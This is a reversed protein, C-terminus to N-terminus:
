SQGELPGVAQPRRARWRLWGRLVLAIGVCLLIWWHAQHLLVAAFDALWETRVWAKAADTGAETATTVIGVAYDRALAAFGVACKVGAAVCGLAWWGFALSGVALVGVALGWVLSLSLVGVAVAGVAIPAVAVGGFALLPSVAIEGVALWGCVTRPCDRVSDTGGWGVALLPLGLLRQRSEVYGPLRPERGQAARVKAYEADTTRTQIRLRKVECDMRRCLGLIGGVLAATWAGVGMVVWNASATYLRGAQTLVAALALSMLFCFPIIRRWAHRLICDREAKSRATSAAARTGLYACVLGILPGVVAGLGLKALLSEGVAGAGSEAVTRAAVAAAAASGSAGPLAALVGLTFATGPRTRALTAEVRSALEERLMTRGRSLRQRVVDESLGLGASVEAISQAERYFLVMPERYSSPIGALARWLLAEEERSVAQTSPDAEPAAEGGAADLPASVGGRRSDRRAASAAFNRVIGCLWARLKAPDRLERLRRWAAVFTEQALDESTDLVGCRSYAISCILSQYREVLGGFAEHDGECAQRWLQEDSATAPNMVLTRM